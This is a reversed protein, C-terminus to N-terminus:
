VPVSWRLSELLYQILPTSVFIAVIALVLNIAIWLTNKITFDITKTALLSISISSVVVLLYCIDMFAPPLALSYPLLGVETVPAMMGTFSTILGYMLNVTFALGIPTFLALMRYAYMGAKTERKIRIYDNMHTALSELCKVTGGGSEVIQGLIFFATRVAWSRSPLHIESLPVGLNLQRVIFNLLYNFRATYPAADALNRIGKAIDYGMKRYETLDRLFIPLSKEERAIERMQFLIPIAYTGFAAALGAAFVSWLPLGLVFTIIITVICVIISLSTPGELFDRSAPQSLGVLSFLIATIIPIGLVLFALLITLSTGPFVFAATLLLVPAVFLLAIIAEGWDSARQSYRTWKFRMDRLLDDAKSELYITLDGGSYWESSYGVYFLKVEESPHIRGVEDIAEIPAKYFYTTNRSVLLADKEFERFIKKGIAMLLSNYLSLGVSQLVSSYLAFLPLEDEAVRKRDSIAFKLQISPYMLFLPPIVFLFVCLIHVTLMLFIALPTIVVLSIIVLMIAECILRYPSITRGSKIIDPALYMSMERAYKSLRASKSVTKVAFDEFAQKLEEATLEKKRLFEPPRSIFIDYLLGIVAAISLGFLTGGLVYFLTRLTIPATEPVWVFTLQYFVFCLIAAIILLIYRLFKKIPLEKLKAFWRWSFKM